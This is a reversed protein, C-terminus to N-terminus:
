PARPPQPHRRKLAATIDATTAIGLAELAAVYTGLGAGLLLALLAFRGLTTAPVAVSPGLAALLTNAGALVLAMLLTAAAIRPLRTGAARDLSLWKRRALVTGLIASGVYGATAIAAAVGVHGFRPFALIGAAAAVALGCLAAVMPTRTDEHAFSVAGLVKEAVHGPLGMAIAALAAAVMQTDHPTFAGREFLARAIPEALLVFGTAAPLALALAIEFARSQAAAVEANTGSRVQLAIVPGIVAAIAVSVVGLPFEYLRDAYYLWSVGAPSPSAIMAGALLTLQPIGAAVLGPGAQVLLRRVDPSPKRVVKRPRVPLRAVAGGILGTQGIGAVVFAVALVAPVSVGGPVGGPAHGLLLAAVAALMVANFVIPGFATAVVRREANLVAALVALTGAVAVYPVSLRVLHVALAFRDGGAAFGPAILRVVLPAAVALVLALAALGLAMAGLAGEAFRRAGDDGDRERIRLWMPVFAANFAGEALLRRFLNPIQLAAFYADAMPGAGLLAAIGADRLFALVRSALTAGGVTGVNRALAM